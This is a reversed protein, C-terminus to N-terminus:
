LTCDISLKVDEAGEDINVEGLEQLIEKLYVNEATDDSTSQECDPTLQLQGEAFIREEAGSKEEGARHTIADLKGMAKGPRYSIVFDVM